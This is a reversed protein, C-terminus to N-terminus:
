DVNRVKTPLNSKKQLLCYRHVKNHVRDKMKSFRKLFDTDPFFLNILILMSGCFLLVIFATLMTAFPWFILSFIIDLSIDIIGLMRLILLVIGLPTILKFLVTIDLYKM